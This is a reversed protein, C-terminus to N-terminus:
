YYGEEELRYMILFETLKLLTGFVGNAIRGEKKDVVYTSCFGDNRNYAEALFSKYAKKDGNTFTSLYFSNTLERDAGNINVVICSTLSLPSNEKEFRIAKTKLKKDAMYVKQTTLQKRSIQKFDFHASKLLNYSDYSNPMIESVANFNTYGTLNNYSRANQDNVKIWSKDWDIYLPSSSKNDVTIEMTINEGSFSYILDISDRQVILWGASDKRVNDVADIGSHFYYRKTTACNAFLLILFFYLILNKM